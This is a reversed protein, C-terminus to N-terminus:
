REKRFDRNLTSCRELNIAVNSAGKQYLSQKTEEKLVNTVFWKKSCYFTDLM